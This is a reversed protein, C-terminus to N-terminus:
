AEQIDHDHLLAHIKGIKCIFMTSGHSLLQLKMTWRFGTSLMLNMSMMKSTFRLSFGPPVDFAPSLCILQFYFVHPLLM